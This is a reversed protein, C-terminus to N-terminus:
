GREQLHLKNYAPQGRAGANEKTIFIQKCNEEWWIWGTGGKSTLISNWCEWILLLIGVATLIVQSSIMVIRNRRRSRWKQNSAELCKSILSFRKRTSFNVNINKLAKWFYHLLVKWQYSIQHRIKSLMKCNCKSFGARYSLISPFPGPELSTNMNSLRPVPRGLWWGPYM